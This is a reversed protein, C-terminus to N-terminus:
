PLELYCYEKAMMERRECRDFPMCMWHTRPDSGGALAELEAAEAARGGARLLKAYALLAEALAPCVPEQRLIANVRWRFALCSAEAEADWGAATHVRALNRLLLMHLGFPLAPSYPHGEWNAATARLLDRARVYHGLRAEAVALNNEIHFRPGYARVDDPYVGLMHDYVTELRGLDGRALALDAIFDAALLANGGNGVADAKEFAISYYREARRRDGKALAEHGAKLAEQYTRPSRCAAAAGLALVCFGLALPVGRRSLM